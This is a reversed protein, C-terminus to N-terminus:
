LRIKVIEDEIKVQYSRQDNTKARFFLIKPGEVAKGTRVDFRSGHVPCTVINDDLSGKSLDGKKHSCRNAIAYYKGNVNAILIENKEVKVMKMKGSALENINVIEVFSM